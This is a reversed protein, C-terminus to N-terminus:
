LEARRVAVKRREQPIHGAFGLLAQMVDERKLARLERESIRQDRPDVDAAVMLSHLAREFGIFGGMYEEVSLAGNSDLDMAAFSTRESDILLLHAQPLPASGPQVAAGRDRATQGASVTAGM